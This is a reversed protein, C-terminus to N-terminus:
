LSRTFLFHIRDGVEAEGLEVQLTGAPRSQAFRNVTGPFRRFLERFDGRLQKAAPVASGHESRATGALLRVREGARADAIKGVVGNGADEDAPRERRRREPGHADAGAAGSVNGDRLFRRAARFKEARFRPAFVVDADCPKM